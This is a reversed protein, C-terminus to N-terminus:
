WGWPWVCFPTHSPDHFCPGQVGPWRWAHVGGVCKSITGLVLQSPPSALLDPSHWHLTTLFILDFFTKYDAILFLVQVWLPSQVETWYLSCTGQGMAGSKTDTKRRMAQQQVMLAVHTSLQTWSKAVRHVTAWRYGRDTPNELCSYQLPNGNGEGSGPISGLDRIDGANSPTNKVLQALFSARLCIPFLWNGM